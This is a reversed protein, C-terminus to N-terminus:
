RGERGVSPTGGITGVGGGDWVEWSEWEEWRKCGWENVNVMDTHIGTGGGGEEIGAFFVEALEGAGDEGLAFVVSGALDHGPGFVDGSHGGDGAAEGGVVGGGGEFEGGGIGGFGFRWAEACGGAVMGLRFDFIGFGFDVVGEGGAHELVVVGAELAAVVFEDFDAPGFGVALFVAVAGGFAGDEGEKVGEAADGGGAVAEGGFVEVGEFIVVVVGDEGGVLDEDGEGPEAVEAEDALEAAFGAVGEGGGAGEFGGDIGGPGFEGGPGASGAELVGRAAGRARRVARAM